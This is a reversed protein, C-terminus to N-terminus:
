SRVTTWVATPLLVQQWLGFPGVVGPTTPILNTDIPCYNARTAGARACGARAVLISRQGDVLPM